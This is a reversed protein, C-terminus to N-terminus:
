APVAIGDGTVLFPQPRIPYSSAKYDQRLRRDVRARLAKRDLFLVLTNRCGIGAYFTSGLVSSILIDVGPVGGANSSLPGCPCGFRNLSPPGSSPMKGPTRKSVRSTM